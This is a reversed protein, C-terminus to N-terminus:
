FLGNTAQFATTTRPYQQRDKPHLVWSEMRYPGCSLMVGLLGSLTMHPVGLDELPKGLYPASLLDELYAGVVRVFAQYQIRPDSLFQAEAVKVWEGDYVMRRNTKVRRVKRVLGALQLQQMNLLYLGLNFSPTVTGLKGRRAWVLFANWARNDIEPFPSSLQGPLTDAYSDLEFSARKVMEETPFYGVQPQKSPKAKRGFFWLTAVVAGVIIPGLM